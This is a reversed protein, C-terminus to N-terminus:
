AYNVSFLSLVRAPAKSHPLKSAAMKVEADPEPWCAPRVFAAALQRVGLRKACKEHVTAPETLIKRDCIRVFSIRWRDRGPALVDVVPPKKEFARAESKTMTGPYQIINKGQHSLLAPLKKGDPVPPVDLVTIRFVHYDGFDFIYTFSAAPALARVCATSNHEILKASKQRAARWACGAIIVERRGHRV